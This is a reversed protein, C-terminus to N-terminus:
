VLNKQKNSPDSQLKEWNKEKAEKNNKGELRKLNFCTKWM